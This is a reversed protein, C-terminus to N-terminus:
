FDVKWGDDRIRNKEGGERIEKNENEKLKLSM